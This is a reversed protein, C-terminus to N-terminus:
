PYTTKILSGNSYIETKLLKGTKDYYERVGHRKGDSYNSIIRIYSSHVLIFNSISYNGFFHTPNELNPIYLVGSTEPDNLVVCVGNYPISDNNLYFRNNRNTLCSCTPIEYWSPLFESYSSSSTYIIGLSDALSFSLASTNYTTDLSTSDSIQAMSSLESCVLMLM